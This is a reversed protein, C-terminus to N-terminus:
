PENLQAPTLRIGQKRAEDIFLVKLQSRTFGQLYNESMLEDIVDKLTSTRLEEVYLQIFQTKQQRAIQLRIQLVDVAGNTLDLADKGPIAAYISERLWCLFWSFGTCSLGTSVSALQANSGSGVATPGAPIIPRVYGGDRSALRANSGGADLKSLGLPDVSVIPNNLVYVFSNLTQPNWTSGAAPDKSVFRGVTPDYWRARLYYLGTLDDAEEGTFRFRNPITAANGSGEPAGWADYAYVANQNGLSDTMLVVSGFGDYHYFSKAGLASQSVLAAGWVYTVDQTPGHETLVVPLPTAVDILFRYTDSGLIETVKNGDGDYEYAATDTGRVVRKLRNAADYSYTTVVGASLSTRNGNADYTFTQKGAQLLRDAADYSYTVPQGSSAATLRNGVADYTYNTQPQNKVAVSLLQSLADYNYSTVFKGDKTKTLRNGLQDLTYGFTTLTQEGRTNAVQLLRNAADYQYALATGNPYTVKLLNSATDYSYSTIQSERDTVRALRNLADYGYTVTGTDPYLLSARNGVADYGYSVAAGDANMVQVPRDLSDYTYATTGRHDLMTLRNGDADYTYGVSSRDGYAIGALRNTADYSFTNMTGNADTVTKVNGVADHTYTTTNRLPDTIRTLRNLADFVYSTTRGNANTLGTRNNNTDYTYRTINGLADTVATLNNVEDYGYRTPKGKADLITTLNSVPDFTFRTTNGLPDVIQTLRSNLDYSASTTHGNPDTVSLLRGIGDYSLNTLGGLADTIQVLNGRADYAYRTANGRADTKRILEGFGGYAFSTTQDLADKISTLNGAADYSFVTAFGRANTAGTLNNRSDYTFATTNGVPDTIRIANGVSDYNFLTIRGNQDMIATRNNSADYAFDIAEGVADFIQVLRQQEDYVHITTAGRPDSISTDTPRPVGYAFSTTFGRGNRQTGVRGASDYTNAVLVNGRQDRIEALKDGSYSFTMVGGAADTVSTLTGATDYGYRWRRGTPDDLELLHNGADYTLSVARGVTDSIGVLNGSGDYAFTLANGNRESVRQLRGTTAFTYRTQNKLTLTFGGDENKALTSFVGPLRSRYTGPGAPDYFEERGDGLKVRVSGDSNQTLILNYSHTWGLGLTGAYSDLSNYTRTFVLPLGRSPIALDTRQFIYNGTATNVPEASIGQPNPSGGPSGLMATVPPVASKSAAVRVNDIYTGLSDSVSADGFELRTVTSTATVQYVYETWVTDLLGVGSAILDAITAGDWKVIVHNDAVGPRPSFLFRLEYLRGAETPLDQFIGTSCFSDLEVFQSGDQATGAVGSQIEIGCSAGFSLGWGPVPGPQCENCGINSGFVVFTNPAIRPEEFSGNVVINRAGSSWTDTAPDYVELINTPRAGDFGGFAYIHGNLAVTAVGTRPTPMPKKTTWSNTAPNYAEVTNVVTGTVPNWGGIAYLNNGVAAAGLDWRATPMPTGVAWSNISPDYVELTASPNILVSPCQRSGGVVYIKNSIVAAAAGWRPTPIPALATSWVNNVPDFAETVGTPVCQNALPGGGIAYLIGNIAASAPKWRATPMNAKSLWTNTAPDYEDVNGAPEANSTSAGGIAYVKANVQVATLGFRATGLGNKATWTNGLSDYAQVSAVPNQGFSGCTPDECIGGGATYIVNGVAAAGLWARATPPTQGSALSTTTLFACATLLASVVFFRWYVSSHSRLVPGSLTHSM